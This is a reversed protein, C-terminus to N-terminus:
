APVRQGDWAFCDGSDEVTLQNIVTLLCQASYEATFLKKEPVNRQFPESLSTDVTGPHLGAVITKPHTRRLEISLTKIMMNLAAKSARYAYWGGLRNDSISGVRASLATFISKNGTRMKPLVHKAILSPGLVNVLMNQQFSDPNLQTFSKEPRINEASDYSHLFGTTVIVLDLPNVLQKAAYQISDENVYDINSCQLKPDTMSLSSRSWCSITAIQDSALLQTLMAQGIGGSGGVVLVRISHSFSELTPM